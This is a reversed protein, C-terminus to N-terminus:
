ILFLVYFLLMEVQQLGIHGTEVSEQCAITYFNYKWTKRTDM